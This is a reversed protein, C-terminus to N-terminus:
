IRWRQYQDCSLRFLGNQLLSTLFDVGVYLVDVAGRLVSGVATQDVFFAVDDWWMQVVELFGIQGFALASKDDGFNGLEALSGCLSFAFFHSFDFFADRM